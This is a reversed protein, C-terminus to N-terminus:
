PYGKAVRRQLNERDYYQTHQPHKAKGMGCSVHMHRMCEYVGKDGKGMCLAKAESQVVFELLKERVLAQEARLLRFVTLLDQRGVVMIQHMLGVYLFLEVALAGLLTTTRGFGLVVAGGVVTVSRASGGTVGNGGCHEWDESSM